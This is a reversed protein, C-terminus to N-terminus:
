DPTPPPTLLEDSTGADIATRVLVVDQTVDGTLEIDLKGTAYNTMRV